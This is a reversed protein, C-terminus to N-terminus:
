QGSWNGGDKQQLWYILFNDSDVYWAVVGYTREAGKENKDTPTFTAQVSYDGMVNVDYLAFMNLWPNDAQTADIQLLDGTAEDFIFLSENEEDSVTKWLGEKLSFGSIEMDFNNVYVGTRFKDEVAPVDKIYYTRSVHDVGNVIQHLEFARATGLNDLEVIKSVVRLTVETDLLVHAKGRIEPNATPNDWWMDDWESTNWTEAGPNTVFNRNEGNVKGYFQGSWNGGDKQQLWYLLFNDSNQYWVVLGYTREAGKENNEGTPTFTAELSYAADADLGEYKIAYMNTWMDSRGASNIAVLEESEEDFVFADANAETSVTKWVYVLKEIVVEEEEGCVSCVRHGEGEEDETAPIDVIVDGWTHGLAPVVNDTYSEGCDCTYVTYGEETCTPAIVESEYEHEHKEECGVLVFGFLLVAILALYIKRM